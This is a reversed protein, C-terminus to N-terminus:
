RIFYRYENEGGWAGGVGDTGRTRGNDSSDPASYFGIHPNANGIYDNCWYNEHSIGWSTWKHNMIWELNEYQIKKDQNVINWTGWPIKICGKQTQGLVKEGLAWNLIKPSSFSFKVWKVPDGTRNKALIEKAGSTVMTSYDILGVLTPNEYESIDDIPTENLADRLNVYSMKIASTPHGNNAYFLTWGGGDTKMDCYVKLLKEGMQIVYKGSPSEPQKQLIELCSKKAEWGIQDRKQANWLDVKQANKLISSVLQWKNKGANLTLMNWKSTGLSYAPLDGITLNAYKKDDLLAVVEYERTDPRIFYHYMEGTEPDKLFEVWLSLFLDKGARGQYGMKLEWFTLELANSPLPINVWKKLADHIKEQVLSIHAIRTIDSDAKHSSIVFFIVPLLAAIFIGIFLAIKKYLFSSDTDTSPINEPSTVPTEDM